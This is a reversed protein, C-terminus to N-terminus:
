RSTRAEITRVVVATGLWILGVVLFLLYTRSLGFPTPIGDIVVWQDGVKSSANLSRDGWWNLGIPLLPLLVVCIAAKGTTKALWGFWFLIGLYIYYVAINIAAGLPHRTFVVVVSAVVLLPVAYEALSLWRRKPM